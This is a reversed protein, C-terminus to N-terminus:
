EEIKLCKYFNYFSDTKGDRNLSLQNSPDDPCVVYKGPRCRSIRLDGHLNIIEGERLNLQGKWSQIYHNEADKFDLVTIVELERPVQNPM